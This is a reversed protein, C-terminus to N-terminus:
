TSRRKVLSARQHHRHITSSHFRVSLCPLDRIAPLHTRALFLDLLRQVLRLLQSLQLFRRLQSLAFIVGLEHLQLLSRPLLLLLDLPKGIEFSVDSYKLIKRFVSPIFLVFVYDGDQLSCGSVTSMPSLIGSSNFLVPDCDTHYKQQFHPLFPLHVRINHIINQIKTSSNTQQSFMERSLLSILYLKM